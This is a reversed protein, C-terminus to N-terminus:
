RSMKEWPRKPQWLAGSGEAIDCYTAFREIAARKRLASRADATVFVQRGNEDVTVARLGRLTLGVAISRGPLSTADEYRVHINGIVVQINSIVADIRLPILNDRQDVAELRLRSILTKTCILQSTNSNGTQILATWYGPRQDDNTAAALAAQARDKVARM